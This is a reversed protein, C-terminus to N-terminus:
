SINSGTRTCEKHRNYMVHYISSITGCSMIHSRLMEPRKPLDSKKELYCLNIVNM